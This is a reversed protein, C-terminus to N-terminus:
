PPTSIRRAPEVPRPAHVRVCMPPLASHPPRCSGAGVSVLRCGGRGGECGPSGEGLRGGGRWKGPSCAAARGTKGLGRYYTALALRLCPAPGTSWAMGPNNTCALMCGAQAGPLGGVHLWGCGHQWWSASSVAALWLHTRLHLGHFRPQHQLMCAARECPHPCGSQMCCRCCVVLVQMEVRYRDM